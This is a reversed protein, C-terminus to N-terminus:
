LISSIIKTSVAGSCEKRKIKMMRKMEFSQSVRKSM